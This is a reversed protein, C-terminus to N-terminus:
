ASALDAPDLGPPARGIKVLHKLIHMVQVPDVIVAVVKMPSFCEPCVFPDVEYVKQILRAWSSSASTSSLAPTVVTEGTDPTKAHARKWGEPAAAAVTEWLPWKGRSRSSYVGHYRIYRARRPPLFQTVRALFEEADLLHLNSKLFANYPTKVLVKGQSPVDIISSLAVTGRSIYQSLNQRARADHAGIEVSHDVSFGSHPWSLINKAFSETLLKERLYHAIVARRFRECLRSTDRLPLHVFRGPTAKRPGTGLFGGELVIAHFHPNWRLGSGFPQFAVIAGTRLRRDAIKDYTRALLDYVIKSISAYLRPDHRLHVRLAKPLTFVFQRHPLYLLLEEDVHESFLLTRKQSCSPCLYFGKCSFPRFYEHGCGPKTCRIRAIGRRYDGCGLFRSGVEEIRELRFRGYEAAFHEDYHDCFSSFHDRFLTQLANQTRPRYAPTAPHTARSLPLVAAAGM